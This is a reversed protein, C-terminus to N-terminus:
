NPLMFSVVSGPSARELLGRALMAAQRHLTSCDVRVEGDVILVRQPTREAACRLADGLTHRVWFGDGYAARARAENWRVSRSEILRREDM